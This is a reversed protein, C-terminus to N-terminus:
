CIKKLYLYFKALYSQDGQNKLALIPKLFGTPTPSLKSLRTPNPNKVLRLVRAALIAEPRTEPKKFGTILVVTYM